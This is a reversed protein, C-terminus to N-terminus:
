LIVLRPVRKMLSSKTYKKRIDILAQKALKMGLKRDSMLRELSSVLSSVQNPAFLLGNVGHKIIESQPGFNPVVVPVGCSMAEITSIGFGELEWSRPFVFIKSNALIEKKLKDTVFGAFFIQKDIELNKALQVLQKKNPGEGMIILRSQPFNKNVQAFADLLLEVQSEGALRGVFSIVQKDDLSHQKFWKKGTRRIDILQRDSFCEVGPYVIEIKEAEIGGDTMLSNRTSRSITVVKDPLQKNLIYMLKPFGFNRKFIPSLPGFEVWILRSGLLKVLPSLLLRDSFGALFCIVKSEKKLNTLTSFFWWVAGPAFWFFKILGKWNGIADLVFPLHIINFNSLKKQRFTKEFQQKVRNNHTAVVIRQGAELFGVMCDLIYQEAGGFAPSDLLTFITRSHLM